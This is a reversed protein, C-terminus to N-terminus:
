LYRHIRKYMFFGTDYLQNVKEFSFIDDYDSSEFQDKVSQHEFTDTNVMVYNIVNVIAMEKVVTKTAPLSNQKTSLIDMKPLKQKVSEYQKEKLNGCVSRLINLNNDM